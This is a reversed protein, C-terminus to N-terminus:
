PAIGRQYLMWLGSFYVILLALADVEIIWLRHKIRALNGILAMITMLLGLVGVLLFSPDITSLFRGDLYFIDTLGVAFMNFLNSGFLNGIAMDNAGIRIAAITTVLEPLSTVLAVLTTGVFTTGLGTIDSIRNAANVMWPTVFILVTAAIAFGILGHRLSPLDTPPAEEEEPTADSNQAHMLYVALGYALMILISDIGLWGITLDIEALMFFLVLSIIFIALSGSLAHKLMAKRLIRQNQHLVDLVALLLMNFMNSGFLNGAALNPEGEALASITTLVEPLSTAGALLIAGILMGGLKTRIAIVDGYKALRDAAITIIVAAIIFEIWVM